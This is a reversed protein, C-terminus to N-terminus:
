DGVREKCACRSAMDAELSFTSCQCRTSSWDKAYPESTRGSSGACPAKLLTPQWKHRVAQLSGRQRGFFPPPPADWRCLGLIGPSKREKFPASGVTLGEGHLGLHVAQRVNCLNHHMRALPADADQGLKVGRAVGQRPASAGWVQQRSAIILIPLPQLPPPAGDVGGSWLGVSEHPAQQPLSSANEGVAGQVQSPVLHIVRAPLDTGQRQRTASPPLPLPM